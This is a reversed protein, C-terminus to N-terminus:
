RAAAKQVAASEKAMLFRLVRLATAPTLKAYSDNLTDLQSASPRHETRLAFLARITAWQLASAKAIILLLDNDSSLVARQAMPLPIRALFALAAAAHEAQAQKAFGMLSAEDLEGQEVLVSVDNMARELSEARETTARAVEDASIDIVQSLTKRNVSISARSLRERAAAKALEFLAALHRRPVDARQGLTTQLLPDAHSKFVLIDYGKTSFRANPNNAVAHIVVRDGESVLVDTVTESIDTRESIALMHDRGGARAVEILDDDTLVPSRTLVPRAVDIEDGALRRIVGPPAKPHDALKESLRFRARVEIEDALLSIVQDFVAIHSAGFSNANVLFLASLQDVTRERAEPAKRRFDDAIGNLTQQLSTV